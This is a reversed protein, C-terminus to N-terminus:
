NFVPHNLTEKAATSVSKSTCTILGLLAGLILINLYLYVTQSHSQIINIAKQCTKFMYHLMMHLETGLKLLMFLSFINLEKM